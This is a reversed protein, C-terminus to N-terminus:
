FRDPVEGRMAHNSPLIEGNVLGLADRCFESKIARSFLKSSSSGDEDEDEDEDSGLFFSASRSRIYCSSSIEDVFDCSVVAGDRASCIIAVAADTCFLRFSSCLFSSCFLPPFAVNPM